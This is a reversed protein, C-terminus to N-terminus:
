DLYRMLDDKDVLGEKQVSLIEYILFPFLLGGLTSKSKTSSVIVQFVVNAIDFPVDTVIAYLLVALDKSITTIYLRPM